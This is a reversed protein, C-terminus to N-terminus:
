ALAAEYIRAARDLQGRRHQEMAPPKLAAPAPADERLEM